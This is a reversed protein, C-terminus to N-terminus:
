FVVDGSLDYDQGARVILVEGRAAFATLAGDLFLGYGGLSVTDGSRVTLKPLRLAIGAVSRVWADGEIMLPPLGALEKKGDSFGIEVTDAAGILVFLDEGAPQGEVPGIARAKKPTPAKASRAASKAKETAAQAAALQDRLEVAEAELAAIQADRVVLAEELEIVRAPLDAGDDNQGDGQVLEADDANGTEPEIIQGDRM